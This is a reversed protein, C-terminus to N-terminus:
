FAGVVALSLPGSGAPRAQVVRALAAGNAAPDGTETAGQEVMASWLRESVTVANGNYGLAVPAILRPAGKPMGLAAAIPMPALMHAADLRGTAIRDRITAWSMQRQLDLTLGQAAAFGKHAAVILSAADVLPIFGVRLVTNM